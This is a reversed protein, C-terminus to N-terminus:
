VECLFWQTIFSLERSHKNLPRTDSIVHFEDEHLPIVRKREEQSIRELPKEYQNDLRYTIRTKNLTAL